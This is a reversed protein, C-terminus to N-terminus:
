RDSSDEGSEQGAEAPAAPAPEACAPKKRDMMRLVTEAIITNATISTHWPDAMIQCTDYKQGDIEFYDQRKLQTRMDNLDLKYCTPKSDCAALASNIGRACDSSDATAPVNGVILNVGAKEAAELLPAISQVVETCRAAESDWYFLDIAMITKIGSASDKLQRMIFEVQAKSKAKSVAINEFRGTLGKKEVAQKLITGPSTRDKYGASISAGAQLVGSLQVCSHRTLNWEPLAAPCSLSGAVLFEFISAM